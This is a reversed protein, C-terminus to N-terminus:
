FKTEAGVPYKQGNKIMKKQFSSSLDIELTNAMNLLYALIDSIEEGIHELTDPNQGILLSEEATKWQFIEMLEAAEIAVSMALNKPTHYQYWNREEVFENAWEKLQTVTTQDDM